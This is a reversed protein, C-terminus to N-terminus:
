NILFADNLDHRIHAENIHETLIATADKHLRAWYEQPPDHMRTLRDNLYATTRNRASTEEIDGIIGNEYRSFFTFEVIIQPMDKSPQTSNQVFETPEYGNNVIIREIANLSHLSYIHSGQHMADKGDKTLMMSCIVMSAYGRANNMFQAPTEYTYKKDTSVFDLDMAADSLEKLGATTSEYAAAKNAFRFLQSLFKDGQINASELSAEALSILEGYRKMWIPYQSNHLIFPITKQSNIASNFKLADTINDMIEM